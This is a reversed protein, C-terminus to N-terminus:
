RFKGNTIYHYLDRVAEQQSASLNGRDGKPIGLKEAESITAARTGRNTWIGASSTKVPTMAESMSTYISKPSLGYKLLNSYYNYTKTAKGGAIAGLTFGAIDGVM